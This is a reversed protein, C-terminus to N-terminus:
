QKVLKHTSIEGNLTVQVFYVGKSLAALGETQITNVGKTLQPSLSLVNKGTIDMVRIQADAVTSADIHINLEANFPNPYLAIVPEDSKDADVMVINSFEKKGSFDTQVLRYYLKQTGTIAFANEDRLSYHIKDSSNGNGKVFAIEKFEKGNVSREIHFGANDTESATAWTLDINKNNNKAGFYLLEVPLANNNAGITIQSGFNGGLMRLTVTQLTPNVASATSILVWGGNSGAGRSYLNIDAPNATSIIGTISFTVEASDMTGTGYRYMVWNNINTNTIGGPIASPLTGHPLSNFRHVVLDNTGVQNYVNLSLATTSLNLIGSAAVSASSVIPTGLPIPSTTVTPTNELMAANCNGSADTIVNNIITDMRWYGKLYVNASNALRTHMTNRIQTETRATDWVRVEDLNGNLYTTGGAYGRGIYLTGNSSFINGFIAKSGVVNGNMYIKADGSNNYTAAIHSYTALPISSTSVVSDVGNITNLRFVIFGTSNIYLNYQPIIDSHNKSIIYKEGTPLANSYVWSELTLMSGSINLSGEGNVSASQNTGNLVLQNGANTYGNLNSVTFTYTATDNDRAGDIVSPIRTWVKMTYTGAITPNFSSSLTLLVSNGSSLSGISFTDIGSSIAPGTIQHSVIVSSQNNLGYNFVWVKPNMPAAGQVVSLCPSIVSEVGLDNAVQLRPEVMFRFASNAAAFDNWNPIGVTLNKYYFTNNRIPDESQYGFGVNVTGTQKVGVFFTGSIPVTPFVPITNIGVVSTLSASTWLLVGPTDNVIDYIVIRYPQGGTNFNIGVQNISNAGSYPFKAVFEGSSGNFGVGGAAPLTPEAYAYVDNTIIQNFSKSNNSSTSDSPVTVTVICTGTNIYSFPAFTVIKFQSFPLITDIYKTDTFANAGSVQLNVQQNFLTDVGFNIINARIEHPVAYPIPLKGLTYVEKVAADKKNTFTTSEYAGKYTASNRVVGKIDTLALTNVPAGLVAFNNISAGSITLDTNSTFTVLDLNSHQENPSVLAGYRYGATTTYINSNAGNFWLATYNGPNTYYVNFDAVITGALTSVWSAANFGSTSTRTNVSINNLYTFSSGVNSNTRFIGVSNVTGATAVTCSGGLRVSNNILRVIAPNTGQFDIGRFIQNGTIGSNTRMLSIANNFINVVANTTVTQPIIRIGRLATTSLPASFSLNSITNRTITITSNDVLTNLDFGYIGATEISSYTDAHTIVNSDIIVSSIGTSLQFGFTKFNLITNRYFTNNSSLATAASGDLTVGRSGQSLMNYSFVNNSNAIGATGATIAIHTLTNSTPNLFSLSSLYTITNNQAGNTLRINITAATNSTSVVQLLSTSGTAGARGDITVNDAGNLEVVVIGGTACTITKMVTATDAPRISIATYSAGSVNGSNLLSSSVTETTNDHIRINVVGQHTGSNIAAFASNLTTYTASFSGATADVSVQAHIISFGTLLIVICTTYLHKM